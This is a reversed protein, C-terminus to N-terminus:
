QVLYNKIKEPIFNHNISLIDITKDDLFKYINNAILNETDFFNIEDIKNLLFIFNYLEILKIKDNLFPTLIINCRRLIRFKRITDKLIKNSNIIKKFNINM